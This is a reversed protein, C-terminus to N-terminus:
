QQMAEFKKCENLIDDAIESGRWQSCMSGIGYRDEKDRLLEIAYDFKRQLAANLTALQDNQQKLEAYDGTAGCEPCYDLGGCNWPEPPFPLNQQKSM